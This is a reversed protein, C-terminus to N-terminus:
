EFGSMTVIIWVGHKDKAESYLGLSALNTAMSANKSSNISPLSLTTAVSLWVSLLILIIKCFSMSDPVKGDISTILNSPSGLLHGSNLM